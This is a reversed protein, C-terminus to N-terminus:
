WRSSNARVCTTAISDSILVDKEADAWTAYSSGLLATLAPDHVAPLRFAPRKM